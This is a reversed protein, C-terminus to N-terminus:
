QLRPQATPNSVWIGILMFFNRIQYHFGSQEHGQVQSRFVIPNLKPNGVMGEKGSNYTVWRTESKGLVM